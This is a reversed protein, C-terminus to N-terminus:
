QSGECKIQHFFVVASKPLDPLKEIAENKRGLSLDISGSRCMVRLKAARSIRRTADVKYLGRDDTKFSSPSTVDEGNVMIRVPINPLPKNDYDALTGYITSPLPSISDFASSATFPLVLCIVVLGIKALQRVVSKYRYTQKTGSGTVASIAYVCAVAGVLCLVVAGLTGPLGFTESAIKKWGELLSGASTLALVLTAWVDPWGGRSRRRQAGRDLLDRGFRLLLRPLRM